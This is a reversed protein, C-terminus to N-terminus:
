EGAQLQVSKTVQLYYSTGDSFLGALNKGCFLDGQNRGNGNIIAAASNAWRLRFGGQLKFYKTGDSMLTGSNPSDSATVVGKKGSLLDAVSSFKVLANAPYGAVPQSLHVYYDTGDSMLARVGAGVSLAGLRKAGGKLDASKYSWLGGKTDLRFTQKGDSMLAVTDAPSKGVITTPIYAAAM